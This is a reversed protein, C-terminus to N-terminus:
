RDATRQPVESVSVVRDVIIEHSSQGLHGYRGRYRTRRGIFDITFLRISYLKGAVDARIPITALQSLWIENGPTDYSCSSAPAPCFRSLEFGRAWLGRWRARPMMKFCKDTDSPMAQVGGYRIRRLCKDTMGPLEQRLTQMQDESMVPKRHDCGSPVLLFASAISTLFSQRMMRFTKRGKTIFAVDAKAEQFEYVSPDSVM